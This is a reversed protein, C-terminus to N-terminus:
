DHMNQLCLLLTVGVKIVGLWRNRFRRTANALFDWALLVAVSQFDILYDVLQGILDRNYPSSSSLDDLVFDIVQLTSAAVSELLETTRKSRSREAAKM